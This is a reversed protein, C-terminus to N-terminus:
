NKDHKGEKLLEQFVKDYIKSIKAYDYHAKVYNLSNERYIRYNDDNALDIIKKRFDEVSCDFIFGNSFQTRSVNINNNELLAPVAAAQFDYFSLSCQKPFLALDTVQYYKPLETYPVAPLLIMANESNSLKQLVSKEYDSSANALILCTIKKHSEIKKSLADALFMGGKTPGIKGAYTVVFSDQEIGLEKRYEMRKTKDPYFLSTDTGFSIFPAQELPIGLRKNVFLDDQVRIVKIGAKIIIPTVFKRYFWYFIKNLKNKSAMDLMHSDAIIKYKYKGKLIQHKYKLVFRIFILTDNGCFFLIDPNVEEIKKVFSKMNWLARGSIRKKIRVRYINVGYNATFTADKEPMCATDFSSIYNGKKTFTTTLIDYSYGLRVMFKSLVNNEYGAEPHFEDTINLVKIKKM